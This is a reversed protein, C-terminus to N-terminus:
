VIAASASLAPLDGPNQEIEALTMAGSNRITPRIRTAVAHGFEYSYYALDVFGREIVVDHYHRENILRKNVLHQPKWTFQGTFSTPFNVDIASYRKNTLEVLEIEGTKGEARLRVADMASLLTGEHRLMVGFDPDVMLWRRCTPFYVELFVHGVNNPNKLSLKRCAFKSSHLLFALVDAIDGCWLALPQDSYFLKRMLTTPYSPYRSTGEYVLHTDAGSHYVARAVFESMAVIRDDDTSTPDLLLIKAVGFPGAVYYTGYAPFTLGDPRVTVASLDQPVPSGPLPFSRLTWKYKNNPQWEFAYPQDLKLDDWTLSLRQFVLPRVNDWETGDGLSSHRTPMRACTAPKAFYALSLQPFQQVSTFGLARLRDIVAERDSKTAREGLFGAPEVLVAGYGALQSFIKEEEVPSAPRLARTVIALANPESAGAELDRTQLKTAELLGEDALKAAAETLANLRDWSTEFAVTPQGFRALLFALQGLDAGLVHCAEFRPLARLVLNAIDADRLSVIEHRQLLTALRSNLTHVAEELSTAAPLADLGDNMSSRGNGSRLVESKDCYVLGAAPFERVWRFGHERLRKLFAESAQPNKDARLLVAPSYLVADFRAYTSLAVEQDERSAGLIMETLILLTRSEPEFEDESPPMNGFLYTIRGPPLAGQEILFATGAAIAELRKPNNELAVTDQGVAALMFATEGLGARPIYCRDFPPLQQTVLGAIRIAEAKILNGQKLLAHYHAYLGSGDEGLENVRRAHLEVLLQNLRQAVKEPIPGVAFPPASTGPTGSELQNREILSLISEGITARLEPAYSNLNLRAPGPATDRAEQAVLNTPDFMQIDARKSAETLTNILRRRDDMLPGELGPVLGPPVLIWQATGDFKITKILAEARSSDVRELHTDHLIRTEIIRRAADGGLTAIAPELLDSTPEGTLLAQYWPMLGERSAVFRSLFAERLFYFEGCRIQDLESVEIVFTDIDEFLRQTRPDFADLGETRNCMYPLLDRPVDIKGLARNLLQQIEGLTRPLAADDSWVHTLRGNSALEDFVELIRWTGAVAIRRSRGADSRGRPLDFVRM